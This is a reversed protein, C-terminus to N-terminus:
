RFSYFKRYGEDATAQEACKESCFLGMVEASQWDLLQSTNRGTKKEPIYYGCLSCCERGNLYLIVDASHLRTASM